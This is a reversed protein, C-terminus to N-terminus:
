AVFWMVGPDVWRNYGKLYQMFSAQKGYGVRYILFNLVPSFIFSYFLLPLGLRKLRDAIFKAAGKKLYSSETFLASLFFFFGMFISQNVAVFLTMIILATENATIDYFYWGGPAGYTISTHHLIVLITLLVRLNNIYNIKAPSSVPQM